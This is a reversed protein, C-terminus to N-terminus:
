TETGGRFDNFAVSSARQESDRTVDGITIKPAYISTLTKRVPVTIPYRIGNLLIEKESLVSAM